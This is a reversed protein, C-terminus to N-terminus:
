EEDCLANLVTFADFDGLRRAQVAKTLRSGSQVFYSLLPTTDISMRRECLRGLKCFGQWFADVHESYDSDFLGDYPKANAERLEELCEDVKQSGDFEYNSYLAFPGNDNVVSQYKKYARRVEDLLEALKQAEIRSRAEFAGTFEPIADDPLEEGPALLGRAFELLRRRFEELAPRAAAAYAAVDLSPGAIVGDCWELERDIGEMVRATDNSRLLYEYLREFEVPRPLPSKDAIVKSARGGLAEAALSVARRADDRKDFEHAAEHKLEEARLLGQAFSEALEPSEVTKTM